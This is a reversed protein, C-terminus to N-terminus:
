LFIKKELACNLQLEQLLQQTVRIHIHLKATLFILMSYDFLDDFRIYQSSKNNKSNHKIM